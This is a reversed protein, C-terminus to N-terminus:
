GDGDLAREVVGRTLERGLGYFNWGAAKDRYRNTVWFVM